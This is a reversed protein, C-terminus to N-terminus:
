VEVLHIFMDRKHHSSIRFDVGEARIKSALNDLFSTRLYSIIVNTYFSNNQKGGGGGGGGILQVGWSNLVGYTRCGMLEFSTTRLVNLFM